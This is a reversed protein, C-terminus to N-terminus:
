KLYKAYNVGRKNLWHIPWDKGHEEECAKVERLTDKDSVALFSLAIPGLALEFMRRGLPSKYYYHKKKQAHKLGEIERENLGFTTYFEHPGPIGVPGKSDAEYNPLFIKTSAQENIVDLLGSQVADSLSQTALVLSCNQKRLGKWYDRLYKQGLDDQFLMWGEDISFLAPQGTLSKEFRQFLCMLVPIVNQKEMKMLDGIEYVVFNSDEAESMSGNLLHGMAGAYHGMASQVKKDQVTAIFDTLSRNEKSSDQMRVLAGHVESRQDPSLRENAQLSYCIEIWSIARLIDKDTELDALPCLVLDSTEGIDYHRGGVAKCLTYMSRGNDIASITAPVTSGDPRPRSCYRRFQAAILCLFTSKGAGVPGFVTMSGNDDVHNSFRFPTSGSTITHMLPPSGEPFFPCPNERLGPWISSLPLMTALSLTHFMPRRVNPYTHGPLSGFYAEQTNMGEVRAGFGRKEIEKAVYAARDMLLGRNESMLVVVPTYDGHAVQDSRADGLAFDIETTMKIADIDVVGNDTKLFANWFGRVKQQWHRRFKKLSDVVNIQNRYIYRSSWRYSIPLGELVSLIGPVSKGPFGDIAVCAVFKDGIKPINGTWMDRTGIWSDMFMPCSPIRLAVLDGTITFHLYNVLDDTEYTEGCVTVYSSGMRRLSLQDGLGEQFDKLRQKFEALIRNGPAVKDDRESDNYFMEGLKSSRRLPPMYKICLAYETEYLSDLTEFMERREADILATIPDPFHSQSPDPYSPAPLRAADVWLSWGEDFKSLYTCVMATNHNVEANTLTASDKGHFFFGALLSGDKGQVIGSDVLGAYNLLDAFGPERTKFKKLSLM